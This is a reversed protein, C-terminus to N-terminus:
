QRMGGLGGNLQEALIWWVERGSRTPVLYVGEIRWISSRYVFPRGIPCPPTSSEVPGGRVHVAKDSM